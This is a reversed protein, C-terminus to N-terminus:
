RIVIMYIISITSHHSIEFGEFYENKLLVLQHSHMVQHGINALLCTTAMVSIQLNLPFCYILSHCLLVLRINRNKAVERGLVMPLFENFTIHQIQAANIHRAEQM